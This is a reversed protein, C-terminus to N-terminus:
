RALGRFRLVVGYPLEVVLDAPQAPAAERVDSRREAPLCVEVFRAPLNNKSEEARLRRRWNEFTSLAVGREVCFVERTVNGAAFESVLEAWYAESRRVSM